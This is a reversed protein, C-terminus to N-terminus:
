VAAENQAAAQEMFEGVAQTVESSVEAILPTEESAESTVESDALKKEYQEGPYKSDLYKGDPGMSDSM